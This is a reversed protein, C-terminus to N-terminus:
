RILRTGNGSLRYGHQVLYQLEQAFWGTVEGINHVPNSLVVEDGRAILRDLFRRNAAWQEARSMQNWIQPPISFRRAGLRNALMIYDPYKGLVTQGTQVGEQTATQAAPSVGSRWAQLTQAGRQGLRRAARGISGAVRSCLSAARNGLRQAARGMPSNAAANALNAGVQAARRSAAAGQALIMACVGGAARCSDLFLGNSDGYYLPNHAVAAYPNALGGKPDALQLPLLPESRNFRNTSPEYYRAGNYYLSVGFSESERDYYQGPGRLNITEAVGDGDPDTDTLGLLQQGFADYRTMWVVRGAEDTLLVPRRSLDPHIFLLPRAPDPRYAACHSLSLSSATLLAISVLSAPM